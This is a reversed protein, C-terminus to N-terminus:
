LRTGGLTNAELETMTEGVSAVDNIRWMYRDAVEDPFLGSTSTLCSALMDQLYQVTSAPNLVFDKERWQLFRWVHYIKVNCFLAPMLSPMYTRCRAKVFTTTRTSLALPFSLYMVKQGVVGELDM